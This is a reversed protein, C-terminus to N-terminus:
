ERAPPIGVPFSGLASGKIEVLLLHEGRVIPNLERERYPYRIQDFVSEVPFWLNQGNRLTMVHRVDGNHPNFRLLMLTGLYPRITGDGDMNAMYANVLRSYATETGELIVDAMFEIFKMQKNQTQMFECPAVTAFEMGTTPDIVPFSGIWFADGGNMGEGHDGTTHQVKLKDLQKRLDRIIEEREMEAGIRPHLCPLGVSQGGVNRNREPVNYILFCRKEVTLISFVIFNKASLM